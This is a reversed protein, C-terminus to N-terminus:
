NLCGLIKCILDQHFIKWGYYFWSMLCSQSKIEKVLSSEKLMFAFLFSFNIGLFHILYMMQSKKKTISFNQQPMYYFYNNNYNILKLCGLIKALQFKISGKKGDMLAQCCFWLAYSLFQLWGWFIAIGMPNISSCLPPPLYFHDVFNRELKWTGLVGRGWGMM